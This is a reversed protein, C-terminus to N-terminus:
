TTLTTQSRVVNVKIFPVSSFIMKWFFCSGKQGIEPRKQADSLQFFSPMGTVDLNNLSLHVLFVTGKAVQASMSLYITEM